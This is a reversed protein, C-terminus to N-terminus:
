NMSQHVHAISRSHLINAINVLSNIKKKGQKKRSQIVFVPVLGAKVARASGELVMPMGVPNTPPFNSVM